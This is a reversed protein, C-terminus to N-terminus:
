YQLIPMNWSFSVSQHLVYLLPWELARVSCPHFNFLSLKNNCNEWSEDFNSAAWLQHSHRVLSSPRSKCSERVRMATKSPNFPFVTILAVLNNVINISRTNRWEIAGMLISVNSVYCLCYRNMAIALTEHTEISISGFSMAGKFIFNM